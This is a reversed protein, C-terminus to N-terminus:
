QDRLQRAFYTLELANTRAKEKLNAGASHGGETEEYFYYPIGYESLRAAFKRAHQPGVRDDKTTTWVLPRPYQVGRKLNAYPSISALFAREDPNSVSGYEGVWSEGADISEFRLMDLLPVQIDVAAWLEPHQTFEVGMLLGGNSGGEIGLRRPSTIGRAILDRAVATFDDYIIQRHTKLGAEHWAPGFEGGGRINAVVYVGGQELWLKGTIASYRPTLSIQFGGYATLITPNSGDTKLQKPAVLFYPIRTGDSSTAELQQVQLNSADFKPPLQKTMAAQLVGTDIHWLSTPQLFGTVSVFAAHGRRDSDVLALTSNDPLELPRRSWRAAATRRYLYVRGRVNDLTSVLLGDRNVAASEFSERPGPQYILTPQLADPHRRAAALDVAVLSGQSFTKSGTPAGPTWDEALSIILQGSALAQIGVKKPLALRAVGKDTVLYVEFEFTTLPRVILVARRGEADVLVEPSVGYGGDDASGRYVEQAQELPQGRRLRKVIYPYGSTTLEGANWERAVLLTDHDQWATRQKGHPLRFGGDVFHDQDVDFERVTVADEGGDSLAILCRREAAPECDTGQWVWNAKEDRALADVDIATTWAPTSTAYSAPASYRWIGRVHQADQWFNFIRHDLYQPMPIRDNSEALAVAEREFGEFHPDKELVALTKDNEAHVWQMAEASNQQELWLYPDDTVNDAASALALLPVACLLFWKAKM